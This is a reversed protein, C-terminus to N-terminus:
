ITKYNNIYRYVNKKICRIISKLAKMVMDTRIDKATTHKVYMDQTLDNAKDRNGSQCKDKVM